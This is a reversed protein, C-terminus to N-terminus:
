QKGKMEQDLFKIEIEDIITKIESYEKDSWMRNNLADKFKTLQEFTKIQELSSIAKNFNGKQLEQVVPEIKPQEKTKPKENEEDDKLVDTVLMFQQTLLYKLGNTKSKYLSKDGSDSAEAFYSVSIKEEPKEANIFNATCKIRAFFNTGKINGSSDIKDKQFYEVTDETISLCVKNNVLEKQVGAIVDIARVYEYKNFDNWGHKEINQVNKTIELMKEYINM